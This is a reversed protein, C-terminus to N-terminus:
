FSVIQGYTQVVGVANYTCNTRIAHLSLSIYNLNKTLTGLWQFILSSQKFTDNLFFSFDRKFEKKKVSCGFQWPEPWRGVAERRWTWTRCRALCRDFTNPSKSCRHFFHGDIHLVQSFENSFPHFNTCMLSQFNHSFISIQTNSSKERKGYSPNLTNKISSNCTSHLKSLRMLLLNSGACDAKLPRSYHLPSTFLAKWSSLRTQKTSVAKGEASGATYRDREGMGKVKRSLFNGRWLRCGIARRRM